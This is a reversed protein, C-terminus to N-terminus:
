CKKFILSEVKVEVSCCYDSPGILIKEEKKSFVFKDIRSGSINCSKAFGKIIDDVYLKLVNYIPENDNQNASKTTQGLVQFTIDNIENMFELEELEWGSILRCCPYKDENPNNGIQTLEVETETLTGTVLRIEATNCIIKFEDSLQSM